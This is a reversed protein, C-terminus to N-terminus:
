KSKQMAEIGPIIIWNLNHTMAEIYTCTEIYFSIPRATNAFYIYGNLNRHEFSGNIVTSRLDLLHTDLFGLM